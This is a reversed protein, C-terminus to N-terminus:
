RFCSADSVVLHTRKHKEKAVEDADDTDDVDGEDDRSCHDTTAAGSSWSGANKHLGGLRKFECLLRALLTEM